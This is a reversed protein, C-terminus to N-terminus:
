TIGGCRFSRSRASGAAGRLEAGFVECFSLRLAADVVEMGCDVGLRALSTVGYGRLGCPIIGGFHGIDPDVNLSVGHFSVWRRVRVGIAAIKEEVGGVSVWLGVRGECVFSEVGLRLLAGMLWSELRGVFLRVDRGGEGSRLDMVVYGVRQGPGHYTYRGGRGSRYVPFRGDLLEGERASSGATYISPHELFWLLDGVEGSLVGGVRSEMVGVAVEYDVPDRSHWFEVPRSVSSLKLSKSEM